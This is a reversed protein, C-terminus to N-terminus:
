GSLEADALPPFREVLEAALEVPGPLCCDAGLELARGPQQTRWARGGVAVFPRPEVEALARIAEEAGPLLGPSATSLAVADPSEDAVLGALAAAPVSAGLLLVEWGDAELFDGIMQIGISHLEGPTCACVALRGSTPAVRMRPGLAGLIGQTIATAQHEYAIGVEGSEWREGIEELAPQLVSLYVDPLPMGGEVAVDVLHRARISDGALLAALYDDRLDATHAGTTV